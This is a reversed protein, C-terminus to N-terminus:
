RAVRAAPFERLPRPTLPRARRVGALALRLARERGPGWPLGYAERVRPPLLGATMLGIPALAPRFAAPVAPRLVSAAIRRADDGVRLTDHVQEAFWAAFAEHDAPWHGDPVGCAAAFRTQEAYYRDREAEGLPGVCRGYVTLATEVLTAWVWLLLDPDRADYGNGHVRGHVAWLGRAARESAARDGFVIRTVVDLTRYLRRWPETEFSSHEVVGRAVLPHAVQLLLARGGGLLLVVERNVRWTVSDPGFLGGHGDGAM